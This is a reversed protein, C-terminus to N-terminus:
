SVTGTHVALMHQRPTPNPVPVPLMHSQTQRCVTVSHLSVLADRPTGHVFGNQLPLSEDSSQSGTTFRGPMSLSHDLVTRSIQRPKSLRRRQKAADAVLVAVHGHFM